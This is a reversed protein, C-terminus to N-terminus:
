FFYFIISPHNNLSKKAQLHLLFFLFVVNTLSFQLSKNNLYSVALTNGSHEFTSTAALYEAYSQAIQNLRQSIVLPQACHRARYFNHLKLMENLIKSYM